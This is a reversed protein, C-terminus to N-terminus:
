DNDCVMTPNMTPTISPSISPEFTPFLVYQNCNNTNSLLYFGPTTEGAYYANCYEDKTIEQNFVASCNFYM